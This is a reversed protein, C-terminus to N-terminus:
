AVGTVTPWERVLRGQHAKIAKITSPDNLDLQHSEVAPGLIIEHDNLLELKLKPFSIGINLHLADDRWVAETIPVELARRVIEGTLSVGDIVLRGTLKGDVIQLSLTQYRGKWIGVFAMEPANM